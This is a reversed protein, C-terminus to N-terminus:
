TAPRSASMRKGEFAGMTPEPMLAVVAECAVGFVAVVPPLSPTGDLWLCFSLFAEEEAPDHLRAGLKGIRGEESGCVAGSGIALDGRQAGRGACGVVEGGRREVPLLLMWGIGAIDRQEAESLAGDAVAAAGIGGFLEVVVEEDDHLGFIWLALPRFLVGGPFSGGTDSISGARADAGGM